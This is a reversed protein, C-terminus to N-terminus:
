LCHINQLIQLFPIRNLVHLVKTKESPKTVMAATIVAYLGVIMAGRLASYGVVLSMKCIIGPGFFPKTLYNVAGSWVERM